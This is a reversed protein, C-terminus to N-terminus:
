GCACLALEEGAIKEGEEVVDVGGFGGFDEGACM